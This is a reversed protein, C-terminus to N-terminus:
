SSKRLHHWECSRHRIALKGDHIEMRRAVCLEESWYDGVYAALQAPTIEPLDLKPANFGRYILNTVSGSEERVFEM